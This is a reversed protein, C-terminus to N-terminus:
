DYIIDLRQLYSSLEDVLKQIKDGANTEALQEIQDGAETIFDFGYGGGCGKFSHGLRLLTKYDGQDLAQQMSKIDKKTLELFDPILEELDSNITVTIKENDESM